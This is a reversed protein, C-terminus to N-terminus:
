PGSAPEVAFAEVTVADVGPRGRLWNALEAAPAGSGRGTLGKGRTGATDDALVPHLGLEDDRWVVGADYPLKASWPMRGHQRKWVRYTPLPRRSIVLAFAHLGSGETLRIRLNGKAPPPYQPRAKWAPPEDEDDPDCLEDTGDPRFAILYAYAPESVEARVTVEDDVRTLFSGRGLIGVRSPDFHGKDHKPFYAVEFRLVRPVSTEEGGPRIGGGVQERSTFSAAPTPPAPAGVRDRPAAGLRLWLALAWVAGLAILVAVASYAIIVRRSIGADRGPAPAGALFEELDAALDGASHHRDAPNLALARRCITKLRAPVEAAALAEADYAGRQARALLEDRNTGRYLPRGTLLFFLVGGLGFLDTPRGVRDVEAQAQEPALYNLTGGWPLDPEPAWAYRLRALGLDILRPRGQGDIMINRPKIDLHLVGHAHLHEVVRALRGVLEAARRPDMRGSGVHEELNSGLVLDMVLYPRGDDLFGLAHVNVLDDHRLAALTRAERILDDREAPSDLDFPKRGLKLALERALMPDNVRFLEAQGGGGLRAVVRYGGIQDPPDATASGAPPVRGLPATVTEGLGPAWLAAVRLSDALRPSEERDLREQCLPCGDLHEGIATTSLDTPGQDLYRRLDEPSPCSM